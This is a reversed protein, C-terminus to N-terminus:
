GGAVIEFFVVEDGASLKQELKATKKNVMLAVKLRGQRDLIAERIGTSPNKQELHEILEMITTGDSVEVEMKNNDMLQELALLLKVIVKM